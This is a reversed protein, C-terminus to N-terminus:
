TVIPVQVKVLGQQPLMELLSGRVRNEIRQIITLLATIQVLKRRSMIMQSKLLKLKMTMMLRKKISHNSEMKKFKRRSSLTRLIM